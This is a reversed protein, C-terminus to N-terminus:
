ITEYISCTHETVANRSSNDVVFLTTIMGDAVAMSSPPPLTNMATNPLPSPKVLFNSM